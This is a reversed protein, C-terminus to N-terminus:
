FFGALRLLIALIAALLNCECNTSNSESKAKDCMMTTHM